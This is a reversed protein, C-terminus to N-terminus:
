PSPSASLADSKGCLFRQVDVAQGRTLFPHAEPCFLRNDERPAALFGQAKLDSYCIGVQQNFRRYPALVIPSLLLQCSIVAALVGMAPLTQPVPWFWLMRALIEWTIGLLFLAGVLTMIGYRSSGAVSLPMQHRVLSVLLMPLANLLLAWVALRKEQPKGKFIIIGAIPGLFFLSFLFARVPELFQASLAYRLPYSFSGLFWVYVYSREFLSSFIERNHSEAARLGAFQWYGILFGLFVMFITASLVWFARQRNRGGVLLAYLPITLLAMLSFNHSLVSAGSCLGIGFLATISPRRLYRGTLLLSVLFFHLSMIMCIYFAMWVTAYHVAAVAYVLSLGLSLRGSFNRRCLLYFLFANLGTGLCNVLVLWKYNQGVIKILGYFILHFFPFWQEGNPLALYHAFPYRSMMWLETWDDLIFFLHARWFIAVPLAGLLLAVGFLRFRSSTEFGVTLVAPRARVILEHERIRSQM